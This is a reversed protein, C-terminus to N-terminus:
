IGGGVKGKLAEYGHMFRLNHILFIDRDQGTFAIEVMSLRSRDIGTVNELPVYVDEWAHYPAREKTEMTYSKGDADRLTVTAPFGNYYRLNKAEFVLYGYGSIDTEAQGNKNKIRICRGTKEEPSGKHIMRIGKEGSEEEMKHILIHEGVSIGELSSCDHYILEPLTEKTQSGRWRFTTLSLPKLLCRCEYHDYILTCPKETKTENSINLVITGDPNVFAASNVGEGNYSSSEIRVAGPYVFRSFHGMTYYDTNKILQGTRRDITILGRNQSHEGEMKVYYYDPSSCEDLLMNWYIVSQSFNRCIRITNRCQYTFADAWQKYGWEGGSAETLWIEKDPFQKKIKTLTSCDGEYWHWASGATVAKAKENAFYQEVYAGDDYNFSDFNHDWCMIKPHLGNKKLEPSLYDAALEAAQSPPMAMTPWSFNAFDPENLLSIGYVPIGRKEYEKVFKALYVAYARQMDKKLMGPTCTRIDIGMVSENTKMWAPASWPAALIKIGNAACKVADKVVPLICEEEKQFTFLPLEEEQPESAFDYPETCHDSAGVPQRLMSIGIGKESFLLEMLTHYQERDLVKKCLYASGETISIGFGDMKQYSIQSDVFVPLEKKGKIREGFFLDPQQELGEEMGSDDQRVASTWVEIKNQKM